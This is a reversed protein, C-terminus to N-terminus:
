ISHWFLQYLSCAAVLIRKLHFCQTMVCVCLYIYMYIYLSLFNSWCSMKGICYHVRIEQSVQNIFLRRTDSNWWCRCGWSSTMLHFCKGRWQGQHPSNVPGRHIGRVCALSVHSQHKRQDADSYVTSYVITLSTIQSAIAGMIVDTHHQAAKILKQNSRFIRYITM